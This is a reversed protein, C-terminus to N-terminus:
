PALPSSLEGISLPAPILCVKLWRRGRHRNGRFWRTTKEFPVAAAFVPHEPLESEFLLKSRRIQAIISLDLSSLSLPSLASCFPFFAAETRSRRRPPNLSLRQCRIRPM